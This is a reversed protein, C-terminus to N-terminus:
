AARPLAGQFGDSTAKLWQEVHLPNAHVIVNIPYSPVDEWSFMPLGTHPNIEDTEVAQKEVGNKLAEYVRYPVEVHIGRQYRFVDGGVSVTPIKPRTKDTTKLIELTVKPDNSYHMINNPDVPEWDGNAPAVKAPRTAVSPLADQPNVKPVETCDPEVALIQARLTNGNSGHKIEIGHKTVAYHKLAVYDADELPIMEPTEM